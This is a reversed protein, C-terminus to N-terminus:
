SIIQHKSLAAPCARRRLIQLENDPDPDVIHFLCCRRAQCRLTDYIRKCSSLCRGVCGIPFSMASEDTEFLNWLRSVGETKEYDACIM